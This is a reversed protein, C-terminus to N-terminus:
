NCINNNNGEAEINNNVYETYNNVCLTYKRIDMRRRSIGDDSTASM